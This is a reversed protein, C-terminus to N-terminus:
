RNYLTLRKVKNKSECFCCKNNQLRALSNKVESHGYISPFFEFDYEGAEAQAILHRTQAVGRTQLIDPPLSGSKQVIQIM